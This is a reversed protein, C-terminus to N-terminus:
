DAMAGLTEMESWHTAHLSKLLTQAESNRTRWLDGAGFVCVDAANPQSSYKPGRGVVVVSLGVPSAVVLAFEVTEDSRPGDEALDYGSFVNFVWRDSM